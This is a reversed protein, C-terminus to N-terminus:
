QAVPIMAGTPSSAGGYTAIVQNDGAAATKPVEVNIQYLGPSILGAFTVTATAGGITVQPLTALAGTQVDAGATLTTVPLGFADGFLSITEGPAAPTFTYGPVSMSAPGLLSYDAHEAAIHVGDGFRLFGPAAAELNVTYAASTASGNNVEVAVPGTTSDLPTLVNVQGASVFYIYAPKGNVTVGVGGLSTPMQGSAFSPASSWTLGTGVSAPALNSGYISIWANQAIAVSGGSVGVGTITPLTVGGGVTFNATISPMGGVVVQVSASGSQPGLTVTTSAQGNFDTAVITAPVTANTPSFLVNVGSLSVPGNGANRLQVVLPLPLTTNAQGTQNGGSLIAVSHPVPGSGAYVHFTYSVSTGTITATVTGNGDGLLATTAAAGTGDTSAAAPSVNIGTSATFTIPYGALQLRNGNIDALHVSLPVPLWSNASGSQFDGSDLALDGVGVQYANLNLQMVWADGCCVPFNYQNNDGGYLPQIAGSTVPFDQSYTVGTLYAFGDSDIAMATVSDGADGGFLMSELLGGAKTPDIRIVFVNANSGVQKLPIPSGLTLFPNGSLTWGAVVFNGQPDLACSQASDEDTGGIFSAYTLGNAGAVAPNIRAIFGDGYVFGAVEESAQAGVFGEMATPTIPLNSFAAGCFVVQGSPDLFLHNLLSNGIPGDYFTAYTLGAKGSQTTDIRALYASQDAEPFTTQFGDSTIPMDPSSTYGGIWAIGPSGVAISSGAQGVSGGLYTSYLLNGIPDFRVMQMELTSNAVPQISNPTGNLSTPGVAEGVAYINDDSDLAVANFFNAGPGGYYTSFVLSRGTPAIKTVFGDPCYYNTGAGSVPCDQGGSIGSQVAAQTPFYPADTEGVAVINGGSDIALGDVIAFGLGINDGLYITFVIQTTGGAIPAFKTIFGAQRTAPAQGFAITGPLNPSATWGGVYINGAKDAAIANGIEGAAGGLYSTYDIIPDIVLAQSRDYPGTEFSITRDRHIRFRGGVERAGRASEQYIHPRRQTFWGDVLLDGAANLSLKRAGDFRMRIRSPDANPAIVFDYEFAKESGRFVLDVGRYVGSYRVKGYNAVGTRWGKPDNGLFYSSTSPLLEVGVPEAPRAGVLGLRIVPRDAAAFEIGAPTLRLAGKSVSSRYEGPKTGPEFLVPRVPAVLPAAQLAACLVSATILLKRM